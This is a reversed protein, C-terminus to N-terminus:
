IETQRASRHPVPPRAETQRASRKPPRALIFVSSNNAYRKMDKVLGDSIQNSYKGIFNDLEIFYTRVLEANKSRSRMCLRKFTDSTLMVKVYRNGKTNAKTDYLLIYDTDKKYSYRLTDMLTDKRVKLLKVVRELDISYEEPSPQLIDYFNDVFETPVLTFLKVLQTKSFHKM